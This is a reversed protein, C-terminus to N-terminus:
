LNCLKQLPLGRKRVPLGLFAEDEARCAYNQGPCTVDQLAQCAGPTESAAYFKEALQLRRYWELVETDKYPHSKWNIFIPAGTYLRFDDFEADDPPILYVDGPKMTQHVYDMADRIKNVRYSSDYKQQYEYGRYVPYIILGLAVPILAWEYHFHTKELAALSVKLLWALILTTSLPMLLVSVRWPSLMALSDSGTMIQVLSLLLGGIMLSLMVIFLRSKWALILGFLMVAIQLVSVGTFWDQPLTHHPIREHVIIQIAKAGSAATTSGLYASSYWLVPLILLLALLGLWFPKLASRFLQRLTFGKLRTPSGLEEWWIVLLYAVMMLGAAFVYASHFLCALSLWLVAWVYKRKLFVLMSVLLFVGFASNQFEMGLLYYGALGNQLFAPNLTTKAEFRLTFWQSHILVLLSFLYLNRFKTKFNHFVLAVIGLLSAVYIGFLIFYYLYFLNANIKATLYVLYSFAPLPDVTNALWDQRLLGQGTQMIGHLFKTNQNGEYLYSQTYAVGFLAAMAVFKLINVIWKKLSGYKESTMSATDDKVETVTVSESM